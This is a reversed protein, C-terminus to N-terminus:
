NESHLRGVERALGLDILKEHTIHNKFTMKLFWESKSKKKRSVSLTVYIFKSTM